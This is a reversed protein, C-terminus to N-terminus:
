LRISVTEVVVIAHRGLWDPLAHSTTCSHLVGVASSVSIVIVGGSSGVERDVVASNCGLADKAFFVVVVVVLEGGEVGM